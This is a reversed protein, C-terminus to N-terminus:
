FRGRASSLFFSLGLSCSFSQVSDSVKNGTRISVHVNLSPESDSLNVPLIENWERSSAPLMM